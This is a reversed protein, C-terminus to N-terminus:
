LDWPLPKDRLCQEAEVSRHGEAVAALVPCLRTAPFAVITLPLCPEFELVDRCAPYQASLAFCGLGIVRIGSIPGRPERRNMQLSREIADHTGPFPSM